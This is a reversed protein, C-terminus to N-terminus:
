KSRNPHNEQYLEAAFSCSSAPRTHHHHFYSMSLFWPACFDRDSAELRPLFPQRYASSNSSLVLPFHCRYECLFSFFVDQTVCPSFSLRLVFTPNPSCIVSLPLISPQAFRSSNDHSRLIAHVSITAATAPWRGELSHVSLSNRLPPKKFCECGDPGFRHLHSFFFCFLFFVVSSCFIFEQCWDESSCVVIELRFVSFQSPANSYFQDHLRQSPRREWMEDNGSFPHSPAAGPSVSHLTHSYRLPNGQGNHGQHNWFPARTPSGEHATLTKRRNKSVKPYHGSSSSHISPDRSSSSGPTLFANETHLRRVVASNRKKGASSNGDWVVSSSNSPQGPWNEPEQKRLSVPLSSIGNRREESDIHEKAEERSGMREPDDSKIPVFQFRRKPRHMSAPSKLSKREDEERWGNMREQDQQLLLKRLAERKGAPSPFPAHLILRASPGPKREEGQNRESLGPKPNRRRKWTPPPTKPPVAEM